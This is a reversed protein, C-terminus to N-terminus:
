RLYEFTPGARRGNSLAIAMVQRAAPRLDNTMLNIVTPLDGPSGNFSTHLLGLIRTYIRNFTDAAQREPSGTAYNTSRPNEIVQLIGPEVTIPDGGYIYREAPPTTPTVDPNPILTRGKAIEAFRYYHALEGNLNPSDSTGEGQQVIYDIAAVASPLDTVKQQSEPLSFQPTSVQRAPNGTIAGAGLAQLQQKIRSYFQGITRSPPLDLANFPRVPFNLPTEPEEIEMFVTEVLDKSFPKLPVVLGTNVTGPLHTPYTPLFGPTDIVPTGGIASLLNCTLLMHLMEEQVVSRLVGRVKANTTGLSYLAYLYPPMTAHELEIAKQVVPRLDEVRGTDLLAFLEPDMYLM